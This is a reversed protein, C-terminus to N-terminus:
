SVEKRMAKRAQATGGPRHRNQSRSRRGSTRPRTQRKRTSGLEQLTQRGPRDRFFFSDLRLRKARDRSGGANSDYDLGATSRKLTKEMLSQVGRKIQYVKKFFWYAVTAQVPM